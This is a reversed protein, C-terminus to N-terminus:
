ATLIPSSGHLVDGFIIQLGNLPDFVTRTDKFVRLLVEKFFVKVFEAFSISFFYFVSTIKATFYATLNKLCLVEDNFVYFVLM